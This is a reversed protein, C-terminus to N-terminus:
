EWDVAGKPRQAQVRGTTSIVAVRRDRDRGGAASLSRLYVSGGNSTGLPRFLALNPTGGGFSVTDGSVSGFEIGEFLDSLRVIKVRQDAPTLDQSEDADLFVSYARAGVDFVIYTELGREVSLTRALRLDALVQRAAANVRYTPLAALLYPTGVGALVGLIALTIMLEILTLGRSTGWVPPGRSISPAWAGPGASSGM